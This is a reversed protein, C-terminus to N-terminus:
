GISHVVAGQRGAGAEKPGRNHGQPALRKLPICHSCQLIPPLYQHSRTQGLHASRRRSCANWWWRLEICYWKPPNFKCRQEIFRVRGTASKGEDIEPDQPRKKWTRQLQSDPKHKGSRMAGRFLPLILRTAKGTWAVRMCLTDTRTTRTCEPVSQM